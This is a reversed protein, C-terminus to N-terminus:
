CLVYSFAPKFASPISICIEGSNDNLEAYWQFAHLKGALPKIHGSYHGTYTAATLGSSRQRDSCTTLMCLSHDILIWFVREVNNWISVNLIFHSYDYFTNILYRLLLLLVFVRSVWIHNFQDLTICYHGFSSANLTTSITIIAFENLRICSLKFITSHNFYNWNNNYISEQCKKLASIGMTVVWHCQVNFSVSFSLFHPWNHINFFIFAFIIQLNPWM